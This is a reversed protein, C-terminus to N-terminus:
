PTVLRQTDVLDIVVLGESSLGFLKLIVGAPAAFPLSARLSGYLNGKTIFEARKDYHNVDFAEIRGGSTATFGVSLLAAAPPYAVGAGNDFSDFFGDLRLHFPNQVQMAYTRAGHVLLSAGTGDLALGTIKEAANDAIDDVTIAPSFFGPRPCSLPFVPTPPIPCPVLGGVPDNIAMIRGTISATNGEGFAIWQGNESSAVFTTDTLQLSALSLGVITEVDGGALVALQAAKAPSDDKVCFSVFAGAPLCDEPYNTLPGIPGFAGSQGKKHDFIILTDNIGSNPLNGDIAVSDADFISWTLVDTPDRRGYSHIQRSDGFVSAPDMWRITGPRQQPTPRTSYYIRGGASKALYQPRDSYSTHNGDYVLQSTVGAGLILQVQYIINDRTRIRTAPNETLTALNVVSITTSGSNAVLLTGATLDPFLGWPQSGVQVTGTFTGGNWVELINFSTNSLFVNGTATHVAIDGVTGQRGVPLPFTRGYAIIVDSRSAAALSTVPTLSGPVVSFGTKPTPANNDIVYTIVKITDGQNNLGFACATPHSIAGGLAATWQTCDLPLKVILPATQPTTFALEDQRVIAGTRANLQIMGVTTIAFDSTISVVVSDDIEMKSPATQQVLPATTNSARLSVVKSAAAGPNGNADWAMANITVKNGVAVTGPFTLAGSLTQSTTGAPFQTPARFYLTDGAARPAWPGAISIKLSDLGFTSQMSAQLTIPKDLPVDLVTPDPIDLTVKPGNVVLVLLSDTFTNGVSDTLVAVIWLDGVETDLPLTPTLFRRVVSDRLDAEGPIDIHGRHKAGSAPWQVTPYRAIRQETGLDPDGTKKYGTILLLGSGGLSRDDNLYTEVLIPDGVNVLRAPVLRNAPPWAPCQTLSMNVTSACPPVHVRLFPANPDPTGPAIPTVPANGTPGGAIGNGFKTVMPGGDCSLAVAVAAALAALRALPLRM